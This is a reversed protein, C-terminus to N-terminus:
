VPLDVSGLWPKIDLLPTGNLCDIADISIEGTAADVQLLRVISLAIPNPRAPSRLSFVGTAALRHRPRQKILDRRAEHMWYLIIAHEGSTLGDLGQRWVEDVELTALSDRERAQRLNKPCESRTNWPTRIRVIFVIHDDGDLDAPDCSLRSEGPRQEFDNM